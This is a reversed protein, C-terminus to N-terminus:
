PYLRGIFVDKSADNKGSNDLDGETYGTFYAIGNSGIIIGEGSDIYLTGTGIQKLLLYNGSSDYKAVFVDPRAYPVQYSQGTSGTIFVNGNTDIAIDYGRDYNAVGFQKVWLQNGSSDYKTIFVDDGGANGTGALAGYTSGTIYSNGSADVAIGYGSESATTGLQKVWVPNGSSTYKAIFVDSGGANGSGALDGQTNGM